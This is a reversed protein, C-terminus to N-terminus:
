TFDLAFISRYNLVLNVNSNKNRVQVAWWWDGTYIESYVRCKREHDTYHKEPAFVLNNAFAADGYLARICLLVDRHYFQLQENGIILDKCQFDPRGAHLKHDILKNLEDTTRYSLGLKEVLELYLNTVFFGFLSVHMGWPDCTIRDRGFLVSGADKGM